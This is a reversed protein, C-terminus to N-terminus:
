VYQDGAGEYEFVGPVEWNACIWISAIPPSSTVGCAVHTVAGKHLSCTGFYDPNFGQDILAQNHEPAKVISCIVFFTSMSTAERLSVVTELLFRHGAFSISVFLCLQVYLLIRLVLICMFHITLM